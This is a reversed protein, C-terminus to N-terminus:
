TTVLLLRVFSLLVAGVCLILGPSDRAPVMVLDGTRAAAARISVVDWVFLLTSAAVCVVGVMFAADSQYLNPEEQRGARLYAGAWDLFVAIGLL